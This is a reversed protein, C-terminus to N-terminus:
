LGNVQGEKADTATAFEQSISATYMMASYSSVFLGLITVIADKFGGFAGFLDLLNYARREYFVM